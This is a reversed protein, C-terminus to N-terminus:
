CSRNDCMICVRVCVLMMVHLPRLVSRMSLRRDKKGWLRNLGFKKRRRRVESASLGNGEDTYLWDITHPNRGTEEERADDSDFAEEAEISEILLDMDTKKPKKKRRHAKAAASLSSDSM